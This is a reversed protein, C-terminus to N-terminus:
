PFPQGALESVMRRAVDAHIPNADASEMGPRDLYCAILIADRDGAGPPIAFAVDNFAGNGSTGTKDGATWEDPLGGRLRNLGTTTATMWARLQERSDAALVDGFLFQRMLGTMAEPSTTDRPDGPINSNLEPEWRDLRTVDDGLRRVGATFAEPGGIVRLLLNSASNDSITIAADCLAGVSMEGGVAAETRPSWPVIDDSTVPYRDALAVHGADCHQLVLGALAWKFTSCMAFREGTRHGLSRGSDIHIAHVGLRGGGPELAAFPHESDLRFGPLAFAATSALFLRRDIM